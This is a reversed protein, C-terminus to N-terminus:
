SLNSASPNVTALGFATPSPHQEVLHAALAELRVLERAGDQHLTQRLGGGRGSYRRQRSTRLRTAAVRHPDPPFGRCSEAMDVPPASATACTVSSITCRPTGCVRWKIRMNTGAFVASGPLLVFVKWDRM